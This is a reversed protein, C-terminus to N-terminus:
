TWSTGAKVLDLKYRLKIGGDQWLGQRSDGREVEVMQLISGLCLSIHQWGRRGWPIPTGSGLVHETWFCHLKLPHVLLTVSSLFYQWPQSPLAAKLSRDTEHQSWRFCMGLTRQMKARVSNQEAWNRSLKNKMLHSNRLILPQGQQFATPLM